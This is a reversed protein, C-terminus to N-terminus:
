YGFQKEFDDIEQQKMARSMPGFHATGAILAAPATSSGKGEIEPQVNPYAKLFGEAWLTMLNNLTDSGISNLNGAIGSVARYAPLSPDVKAQDEGERELAKATAEQASALVAASPALSAVFSYIAPAVVLPAAAMGLWKWGLNM